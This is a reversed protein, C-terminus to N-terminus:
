SFSNINKTSDLNELLLKNKGKIFHIYLSYEDQVAM